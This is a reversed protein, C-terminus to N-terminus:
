MRIEFIYKKFSQGRATKLFKFNRTEKKMVSEKVKRGNNKRM